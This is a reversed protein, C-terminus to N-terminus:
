FRGAKMIGPAATAPPLLADLLPLSAADLEIVQRGRLFDDEECLYDFIEHERRCWESADYHASPIRVLGPVASFLGWVTGVNTEWHPPFLADISFRFNGWAELQMLAAKVDRSRHSLALLR